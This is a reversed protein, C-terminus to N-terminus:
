YKVPKVDFTVDDDGIYKPNASLDTNDFDKFYIVENPYDTPSPFSDNSSRFRYALEFSKGYIAGRYIVTQLWLTGGNKEVTEYGSEVCTMDYFSTGRTAGSETWYYRPYIRIITNIAHYLYLSGVGVETEIKDFIDQISIPNALYYHYENREIKDQKKAVEVSLDAIDSTNDNVADNTANMDTAGFLDGEQTYTTVDAFSVTNDGNDIMQYKRQPTAPIDDVYDTRLM